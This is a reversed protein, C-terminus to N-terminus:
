VRGDADAGYDPTPQKWEGTARYLVIRFPGFAFLDKKARPWYGLHWSFPFIVLGLGYQM